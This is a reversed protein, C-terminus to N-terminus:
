WIGKLATWIEHDTVPAILGEAQQHHLQAGRRVADIDIHRLSHSATSVLVVYFNVVEAEIDKAETLIKGEHDELSQIGTVKNKGRM